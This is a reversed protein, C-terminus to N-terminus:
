LQVRFNKSCYKFIQEKYDHRLVVGGDSSKGIIYEIEREPMSFNTELIVHWLNYNNPMKKELEDIKNRLKRFFNKKNIAQIDYIGVSYIHVDKYKKM